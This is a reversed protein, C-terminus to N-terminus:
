CLITVTKWGILDTYQRNSLQKDPQHGKKDHLFVRLLVRICLTM